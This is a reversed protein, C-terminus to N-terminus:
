KKRTLIAEVISDPPCFGTTKGALGRTPRTHGHYDSGGTAILGHREALTHLKKRMKRTHSPYFIELGDLGHLALERIISSQVRIAPDIPGPHALVAIGGVQHIMSIAEITTYCFRGHWAPKNKALFMRFAQDINPVAGKNVLLQAIHPRGTQGCGSISEVEEATIKIGLENLSTLINRNRNIRGEQLPRLWQHLLPADPDIDYGLLHLTTERHRTSIEVGSIITIDAEKGLRQIEGTGEVTDHDTLALGTLGNDLALTILEAPTANGDSYISHTHLDVCM